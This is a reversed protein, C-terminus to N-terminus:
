RVKYVLPLYQNRSLSVSFSWVPSYESQNGAGDVARVRWFWNGSELRASFQNTLVTGTVLDPSNFSSSRDVQIQYREASLVPQWGFDVEENALAAGNAPAALAPSPVEVLFAPKIEYTLSNASQDAAQIKLSVLARNPLSPFDASFSSGAAVLPLEVWAGSNVRYQVTVSALSTDDEVVLNLHKPATVPLAELPDNGSSVSLSQLYPPSNDVAQTNFVTTAVASGPQDGVRYQENRVVLRYKGASAAPFELYGYPYSYSPNGPGPLEGEAALSGNYYLQYPYSNEPNVPIDRLQNPFLGNWLSSCSTSARLRIQDETNEFRGSWLPPSVGFHLRDASTSFLAPEGGRFCFGYGTAEIVQSDKAVMVPTSLVQSGVWDPQYEFVDEHHSTAYGASPLVYLERTFPNALPELTDDLMGSSTIFFPSEWRHWHLVEFQEAPSDLDYHYVVHKFDEARNQFKRGAKLGNNVGGFFDYQIGQTAPSMVWEWSYHDSFSSFYRTTCFAGSISTAWNSWDQNIIEMGFFGNCPDGQIVQGDKGVPVISVLNKADQKAFSVQMDGNIQLGEKIIKTAVDQYVLVIDYTKQPLLLSFSTGIGDMWSYFLVQSARDHILVFWPEEDFKLTLVPSKIVSFPVALTESSSQVMLKGEYAFLDGEPYPVLSNDVSLTFNVTKSEGASLTVSSPNLTTTIGAPLGANVSFAYTAPSGSVNTITLSRTKKWIGTTESVRGFAIGGPQVVAMAGAALRVQMRGSGQEYASLGLDKATNMLNAKITEPTWDPNLQRLLAAAGAVHPTAMSTGDLHLYRDPSSLEGAKPVTSYIFVGPALIDPKIEQYLGAVPGRSSFLALYDSKDSAGVTIAKQAAGPSGITAYGPGANGAAVVVVVGQGVAANVAASMPSDPGGPGGLSMSIVDVGDATASNGDPNSAQELAAIIDSEMGSGYMDLVKYAFLAAEPAVGQYVGNAAVIGACHTGHGNDDMPDPDDNVFDYGGRVKRNTGFGGGLDPHTYDIGTDVIAVQMGVGTVPQHDADFLTWVEEAGILPVSEDLVAQVQQDPFVAKVGPLSELLPIDRIQISGSIGNFLYSFRHRDAFQIGRAKIAGLLVAQDNQIALGYAVLQSEQEVSLPQSAPSLGSKYAAVPERELQIIIGLTDASGPLYIAQGDVNAVPSSHVLVRGPQSHVGSVEPRDPDTSPGLYSIYKRQDQGPDNSKLLSLIDGSSFTTGAGSISESARSKGSGPLLHSGALSLITLLIVVLFMRKTKMKMEM